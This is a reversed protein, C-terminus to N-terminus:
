VERSHTSSTSITAEATLLRSSRLATERMEARTESRTFLSMRASTNSQMRRASQRASFRNELPSRSLRSLPSVPVTAPFAM